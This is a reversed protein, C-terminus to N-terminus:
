GPSSVALMLVSCLGWVSGMIAQPQETSAGSPIIVLRHQQESSAGAAASGAALDLFQSTLVHDMAGGGVIFLSGNRPGRVTM